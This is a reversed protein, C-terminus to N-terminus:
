SYIACCIDLAVKVQRAPSLGIPRLRANGCISAKDSFFLLYERMKKETDNAIELYNEGVMEAQVSSNRRIFNFLCIPVLYQSRLATDIWDVLM